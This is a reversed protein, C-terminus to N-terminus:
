NQADGNGLAFMIQQAGLIEENNEVCYLEGNEDFTLLSWEQSGPEAVVLYKNDNAEYDLLIELAHKQDDEGIYYLYDEEKNKAM